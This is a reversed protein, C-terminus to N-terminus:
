DWSITLYNVDVLVHYGLYQLYKIINDLEDDYLQKDTSNSMSLGLNKSKYKPSFNNTSLLEDIDIKIKSHGNRASEKIKQCILLIKDSNNYNSNTIERASKADIINYNELKIKDINLKPINIFNEKKNQYNNDIRKLRPTSVSISKILSKEKNTIQRYDIPIIQPNKINNNKSYEVAEVYSGKFIVDNLYDCNLIKWYNERIYDM